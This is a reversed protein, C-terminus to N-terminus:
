WCYNDTDTWLQQTQGAKDTIFDPISKGADQVNILDHTAIKGELVIITMFWWADRLWM